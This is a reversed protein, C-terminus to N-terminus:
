QLDSKTKPGLLVTRLVLFLSNILSDSLPFVSSVILSWYINQQFICNRLIGWTLQLFFQGLLKLFRYVSGVLYLNVWAIFHKLILPMSVSIAKSNCSM